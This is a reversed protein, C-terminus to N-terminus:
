KGDGTFFLFSNTFWFTVLCPEHFISVKFTGLIRLDLLVAHGFDIVVNGKWTCESTFLCVLVNSDSM